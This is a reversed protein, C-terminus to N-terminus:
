NGAENLKTIAFPESTNETDIVSYITENKQYKLGSEYAITAYFDDGEEKAVFFVFNEPDNNELFTRSTPNTGFNHIFLENQDLEKPDKKMKIIEDETYGSAKMLEESKERFVREYFGNDEVKQIYEGRTMVGGPVQIIIEKEQIDGKYVEDVSVVFKTVIVGDIDVDVSEVNKITGSVIYPSLDIFEDPDTIDVEFDAIVAFLETGDIDIDSTFLTQKEIKTSQEKNGCAVLMFSMLIIIVTKKM